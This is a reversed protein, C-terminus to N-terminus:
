LGGHVGAIHVTIAAAANEQFAILSSDNPSMKLSDVWLQEVGLRHPNRCRDMGAAALTIEFEIHSSIASKRTLGRM